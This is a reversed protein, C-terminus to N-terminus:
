DFFSATTLPVHLGRVFVLYIMAFLITITTLYFWPREGGLIWFLAAAMVAMAPFFGVHSMAAVAVATIAFVALPKGAAAFGPTGEGSEAPSTAQRFTSVLLILALIGLAVLSVRPFVAATGPFRDATQWLPFIAAILCAAVIGNVWRM